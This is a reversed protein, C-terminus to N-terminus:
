VVKELARLSFSMEGYGKLEAYPGFYRSRYLGKIYTFKGLIEDCTVKDGIKFNYLKEKKVHYKM